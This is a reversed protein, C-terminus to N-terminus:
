QRNEGSDCGMVQQRKGEAKAIVTNRRKQADRESM